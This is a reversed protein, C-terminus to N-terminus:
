LSTVDANIFSYFILLFSIFIDCYGPKINSKEKMIQPGLFTAITTEMFSMEQSKTNTIQYYFWKEFEEYIIGNKLLSIILSIQHSEM